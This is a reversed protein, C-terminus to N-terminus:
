GGLEELKDHGFWTLAHIVYLPFPSDLIRASEADLLGAQACMHVHYAVQVPSYGNIATIEFAGEGQRRHAEELIKYVLKMNRHM